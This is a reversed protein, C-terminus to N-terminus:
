LYTFYAHSESQSSFELEDGREKALVLLASLELM